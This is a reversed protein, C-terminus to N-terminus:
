NTLLRNEQIYQMVQQTAGAKSKVYEGAISCASKYEEGNNLLEDLQDELELADLVTFAGGKDLLDIAEAFKEYEAGFVIPKYYVAAELINHIGDGGFGGGVFCVSAYAYLYKLTGINDIILVNRTERKENRTERKENKTELDKSSVPLEISNVASQGCSEELQSSVASQQNDMPSQSSIASQQNSIESYLMANRYLKKCEDIREKGIDHPAIIFFYEPHIWTYHDLVEDDETWTSGAVITTKGKCLKEIEPIPKFNAAIELVRDFRTDGSVSINNINISNLLSASSENQVFLHTFFRLMKRSISGYWKFFSFQSLFFGSVLLVPINRKAAESLYHYWYEYKIFIILEPKVIDYFLSANHKSDMPMYFIFDGAKYDKKNEYGSPSFFTLVIKYAPYNKKVAEMLPMGQEFEGLSAAHFWVKKSTDNQLRSKIENFINRRGSVWLKAKKNFPSVLRAVFPYLTIFLQYFLKPMNTFILHLYINKQCTIGLLCYAIGLVWNRIGLVWNRIGETQRLKARM